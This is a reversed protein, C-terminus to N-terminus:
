RPCLRHLFDSGQDHVIFGEGPLPQRSQQRVLWVDLDDRLAAVTLLCHRGDDVVLRVQHEEVHLHGLHIAELHDLRDAALPHREDDEHGGVVLMRQSGELHAREIIQQLREITLAEGLRELARPMLDLPVLAAIEAPPQQREDLIQPAILRPRIAQDDLRTPAQEEQAGVLDIPDLSGPVVHPQVDSRRRM